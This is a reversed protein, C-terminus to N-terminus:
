EAFAYRGIYLPEIPAVRSRRVLSFETRTELRRRGILSCLTARQSISGRSATYKPIYGTAGRLQSLHLVTHGKVTGAHRLVSVQIRACDRRGSRARALSRGASHLRSIRVLMGANREAEGIIPSYAKRITTVRTWPMNDEYVVPNLAQARNISCSIIRQM